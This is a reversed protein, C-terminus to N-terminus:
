WLAVLDTADTGTSKVVDPRIPLLTGSPVNALTVTTGAASIVTVDGGTGVWVARPLNSLSNSDHPTIDAWDSAPSQLGSTHRDFADAM